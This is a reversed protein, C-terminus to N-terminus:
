LITKLVKLVTNKIVMQGAKNPHLGDELFHDKTMNESFSIVQQNDVLCFASLLDQFKTIRELYNEKTFNREKANVITTPIGVIPITNNYIAQKIMAYINAIILENSLGFWLDNTGGLIILHTPKHSVLLRECRALMGNTTDGSIGCNIVKADIENQLLDTWRSNEETNYGQTLSDGLCLIKYNSM